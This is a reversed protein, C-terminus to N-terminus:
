RIAGDILTLVESATKCQYLDESDITYGYREAIAEYKPKRYELLPSFIWRVFEDPDIQAVYTLQNSALYEELRQKFFDPQYYLPKPAAMAREILASQSNKNARIYIILTKESLTQYVKEDDLECLSGGADNIFHTLGQKQARDIFNPVDLMTQVEAYRHLAQRRVFEDIPLGGLEPNGVKGLFSSVSSLNDFTIQNKINISKNDLLSKFWSDQSIRTKINTLIASNLYETGIRYDGSYHFWKPQAGLLKALHTKGVGSMGLLTLHKNPSHKFKNATRKMVMKNSCKGFGAFPKVPATNM